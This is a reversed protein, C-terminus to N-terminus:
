REMGMLGEAIYELYHSISNKHSLFSAKNKKVQLVEDKWLNDKGAFTAKGIDGSWWPYLVVLTEQKKQTWLSNTKIKQFVFSWNWTKQEFEKIFYLSM